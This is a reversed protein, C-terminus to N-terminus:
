VRFLVQLIKATNDATELAIIIKMQPLPDRSARQVIHLYKVNESNFVNKFSM